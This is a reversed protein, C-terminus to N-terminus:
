RQNILALKGTELAQLQKAIDDGFHYHCSDNVAVRHCPIVIPIPNVNRAMGIANAAYPVGIKKAIQQYTQQQNFPINRLAQWVQCQFQTGQPAVPFEFQQRKGQFYQTLEQTYPRMKIPSHDWNVDPRFGASCITLRRLGREDALLFIKGIDTDLYDFYM